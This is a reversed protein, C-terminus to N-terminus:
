SYQNNYLKMCIINFISIFAPIITFLLIIILSNKPIIDSIQFLNLIFGFLISSLGSSLKDIIMTTGLIPGEINKGTLKKNEEIVDFCIPFVLMNQPALGIHYILATLLGILWTMTGFFGFFFMLTLGFIFIINSFILIKRKSFIKYLYSTLSFTIIQIPIIFILMM